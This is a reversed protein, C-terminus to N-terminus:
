EPRRLADPTRVTDATSGPWGASASAHRATSPGAAQASAGFASAGSVSAGSVSAGSVASAASAAPVGAVAPVAAAQAAQAAAASGGAQEIAQRAQEVPSRVTLAPAAAASVQEKASVAGGHSRLRHGVAEDLTVPRQLRAALRGAEQGLAAVDEWRLQVVLRLEAGGDPLALVPVSSQDNM